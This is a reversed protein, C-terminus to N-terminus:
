LPEVEPDTTGCGHGTDPDAVCQYVRVYDVIMEQPFTTSADPPGPWSGGVAVNLLLHFRQDFPAPFTADTTHWETQTQYHRDDVFWRIEGAEWEIAYVHFAEWANGIPSTSSGSSTNDPWAGGYHLTGHVLRDGPGLNVAEMIDIEGSAAWGGYVSDTPLMWFAPWLGQGFPLQMRAEIRGYRFDGRNMTRLRASSHGLTVVTPNDEPGAIPGSPHDDIAVIHLMGDAVFSNKTDTVYCQDENNGGGWCNVEHEWKTADISAGDFEDSWVLEWGNEGAGGEAGTADGGTEAGGAARAGTAVGGTERGGAPNGGAEAGGTPSGATGGTTRGGTARGGSARGGTVVGGTTGGGTAVGGTTAGGSAQGGTSSSGMTGGTAVGGAAAGGSAQGGTGTAGSGGRDEGPSEDKGSCGAIGCAVFLLPWFVRAAM